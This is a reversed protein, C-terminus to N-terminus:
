RSSSSRRGAPTPTTPTSSSAHQGQPCAQKAGSQVIDWFTDGDGSHTVMAFKWRPTDVAAHGGAAAHAREEEARKGGTSSCASLVTLLVAAMVAGLVRRPEERPAVSSRCGPCATRGERRPDHTRPDRVARASHGCLYGDRSRRTSGQPDPGSWGLRRSVLSLQDSVRWRSHSGCWVDVGIRRRQRGGMGRVPHGGAATRSRARRGAIGLLAAAGRDPQRPRAGRHAGAPGDGAPPVRCAGHGHAGRRQHRTRLRAVPRHRVGGAPFGVAAAPRPGTPPRRRGIDATRATRIRGPAARGRDGGEWPLALVASGHPLAVVM